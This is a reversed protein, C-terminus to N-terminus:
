GAHGAPSTLWTAPVFMWTPGFRYGARRRGGCQEAPSSPAVGAAQVRRKGPDVVQPVAADQLLREDLLEPAAALAMVDCKHQMDRNVLVLFSWNVVIATVIVFLFVLFLVLVTVLRRPTVREACHAVDRRVGGAAGARRAENTSPQSSM